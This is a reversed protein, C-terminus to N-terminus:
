FPHKHLVIHPEMQLHALHCNKFLSRIGSHGRAKKSTNLLLLICFAADRLPNMSCFLFYFASTMSKFDTVSCLQLLFSLFGCQCSAAPFWGSTGHHVPVSSSLFLSFIDSSQRSGKRKYSCSRGQELAVQCQPLSCLERAAM